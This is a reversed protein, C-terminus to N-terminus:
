HTGAVAPPPAGIHLAPPMSKSIPKPIGLPMAQPSSFAHKHPRGAISRAGVALSTETVAPPVLTQVWIRLYRKIEKRILTTLSVFIENNKSM